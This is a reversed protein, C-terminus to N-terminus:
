FLFPTKRPDLAVSFCMFSNMFLSIICLTLDIYLKKHLDEINWFDYKDYPIVILLTLGIIQAWFLTRVGYTAFDGCLVLVCKGFPSDIEVFFFVEERSVMVM